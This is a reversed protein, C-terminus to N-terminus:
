HQHAQMNASDPVTFTVTQRCETCGYPSAGGVETLSQAFANTAVLSSVVTAALRMMRTM